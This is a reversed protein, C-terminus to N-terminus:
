KLPVLISTRIENSHSAESPDSNYIEFSPRSQDLKLKAMQVHSMVAYWALELFEYSGQLSAKLYKGGGLSKVEFEGPEINKSIPVAMDCEFYMKKIDTKHYAALPPGAIVGDGQTQAYEALQPYGAEMATKMEEIGGAFAKCLFPNEEFEVVGEFEITPFECAPDLKGALMALGLDYDKAVMGAVKPAMFRCIFPMKGRMHWTVKTQEGEAAVDFGVDAQSKFPKLFEIHDEIRKPSDLNVHTLKGAGIIKGEWTYFGKEESPSESFELKTDPEHLLWPSWEQWSTFDCLKDFVVQQPANVLKSRSVSYNGDLSALYILAGALIIVIVAIVIEM